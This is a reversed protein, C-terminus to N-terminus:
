RRGGKGFLPQDLNGSTEIEIAEVSRMGTFYPIDRGTYDGNLVMLGDGNDNIVISGSSLQEKTFTMTETPTTPTTSGNIYIETANRHTIPSGVNWMTTSYRNTTPLSYEIMPYIKGGTTIIQCIANEFVPIEVPELQTVVPTELEYYLTIPNEKLWEKLANKNFVNGTYERPLNIGISNLNLWGVAIDKNNFKNAPPYPIGDVDILSAQRLTPYPKRRPLPLSNDDVCYMTGSWNDIYNENDAGCMHYVGIRQIYQGTVPNYSDYVTGATPQVEKGLENHWFSYGRGEEKHIKNLMLPEELKVIVARYPSVCKEYPLYDVGRNIMVQNIYAKRATIKIYRTNAQLTIAKRSYGQGCYETRQTQVMNEDYEILWSYAYTGQTYNCYITENPIASIFEKTIVDGSNTGTYTECNDMDFMNNCNQFLVGDIETTKVGNFHTMDQETTDGEFLMVNDVSSKDFTLNDNLGGSKILNNSGVTYSTGGFLFSESGGNHRITYNANTNLHKVVYNNTSQGNLITTPYIESDSYVKIQGDKYLQPIEHVYKTGEFYKIFDFHMYNGELIVIGNLTVSTGRVRLAFRSSSDTKLVFKNLGVKYSVPSGGAWYAGDRLIGVQPSGTVIAVDLFVTYTTNQKFNGAFDRYTSFTVPFTTSTMINTFPQGAPANIKIPKSLAKYSGDTESVGIRKTLIGTVLDYSDYVNGLSRLKIPYELDFIQQSYPITSTNTSTTDKDSLKILSIDYYEIPNEAYYAYFRPRVSKNNFYSVLTVEENLQTPTVYDTDMDSDFFQVRYGDDLSKLRVKCSFRYTGNLDMYKFANYALTNAKPTVKMYSEGYDIETITGLDSEIVMDNFYNYVNSMTIIRSLEVDSTENIGVKNQVSTEVVRVNGVEGDITLTTTDGCRVQCPSTPSDVITGGCNLSTATGDFYINYTSGTTLNTQTFKNSIPLTTTLTPTLQQSSIQISGNQYSKLSNISLQETYPTGLKYNFLMPNNQLWTRLEELTTVNYSEPMIIVTYNNNSYVDFYLRPRTIEINNNNVINSAPDANSIIANNYLSYPFNHEDRLYKHQRSTFTVNGTTAHVDINWNSTRDVFTEDLVYVGTNKYLIGTTLDLKDYITDNVKCLELDSPTEIKCCDYTGVESGDTIKYIRFNKITLRKNKANWDPNTTFDITCLRNNDKNGTCTFWSKYHGVGELYDSGGSALTGWGVSLYPATKDVITGTGTHEYDFEIGFKTGVTYNGVDQPYFGLKVGLYRGTNTVDIFTRDDSITNNNQNQIRTMPLINHNKTQSIIKPSKVCGIGEFYPINSNIFYDYYDGEFVMICYKLSGNQWDGVHNVRCFGDYYGNYNKLTATSTTYTFVVVGTEGSGLLNSNSGHVLTGYSSHIKVGETSITNEVVRVVCTYTVGVKLNASTKIWGHQWTSTLSSADTITLKIMNDEFTKVGCSNNQFDLHKQSQILNILSKGEIYSNQTYEGDQDDSEYYGEYLDLNELKVNSEIYNVPSTTTFVVRRDTTELTQDGVTLQITEEGEYEFTLTYVENVSLTPIDMKYGM